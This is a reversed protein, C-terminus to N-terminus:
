ASGASSHMLYQNNLHGQMEEKSVPSGDPVNARATIMSYRENDFAPFEPIASAVAFVESQFRPNDQMLSSKYFFGAVVKRKDQNDVICVSYLHPLSYYRDIDYERRDTYSIVGDADYTCTYVALPMQNLLDEARALVKNLAGVRQLANLTWGSLSTLEEKGVLVIKVEGTKKMVLNLVLGDDAKFSTMHSVVSKLGPAELEGKSLIGENAQFRRDAETEVDPIVLTSAYESLIAVFQSSAEFGWSALFESGDNFKFRHILAAFQQQYTSIGVATGIIRNIM